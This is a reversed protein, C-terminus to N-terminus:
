PMAEKEPRGDIVGLIREAARHAAGGPGLANRVQELGALMEARRPTDEILGAVAQALAEPTAENQVFEPCVRRGAVINVMGIHETQVLRRALFHTPAPMKYVVIMPCDLLATELTATGSATMAADAQRLAARTRGVVVDVRAPGNPWGATRSRIVSEIEPSAAAVLFSADPREKQLRGAAQWMVPLIHRIEGMRSGPLLAIRPSGAWPLPQQPQQLFRQVEDVLPHGVFDVPLSTDKFCDPEFPFIALLRDLIRAMQKVRGRRWAWVQPCIYYVTKINLRHLRDALRLNFDPYDILVAVDPRRARVDQLLRRFARRFFPYRLLVNFFGMVAMDKVDYLTEAGENRMEPGGLGYVQIDPRRERLARILAAGHMDGSPEGAVMFFRTSYKSRQIM